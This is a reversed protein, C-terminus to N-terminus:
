GDASSSSPMGAEAFRRMAKKLKSLARSEYRSLVELDKAWTALAGREIIILRAEDVRRLLWKAEAFTTACELRLPSAGAGAIADAMKLVEAPTEVRTAALGHRWANLRSRSKGLSTRPGTSKTANRRNSERKLNSSTPM